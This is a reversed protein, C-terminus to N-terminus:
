GEYLKTYHISYSTIVLYGIDGTHFWGDEDIVEATLEPAKYYGKMVTPGKCLIEGDDAIKVEIGELITGVTGIKMEGTRPNNVAIVPSTETLGYGELTYMGAMGLVRAIRPQLAAGGSVIYTINNGLAERWKSYVLKDAMKIQLSVFPGYEKNFEFHRTLSLAWFYIAKKIGTLENEYLKTYHISYSTIVFESSILRVDPLCVLSIM